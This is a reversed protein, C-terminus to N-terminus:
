ALQPTTSLLSKDSDWLFTRGLVKEGDEFSIQCFEDRYMSTEYAQLREIQEDTEVQFAVGHVPNVPPLKLLAPYPGWYECHYGILKAPRLVPESTLQLITTLRSPDMLTGYFFYHIPRIARFDVPTPQPMTHLTGEAGLRRLHRWKKIM